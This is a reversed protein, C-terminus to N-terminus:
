NSRPRCPKALREVIEVVKEQLADEDVDRGGVRWIGALERHNHADLTM